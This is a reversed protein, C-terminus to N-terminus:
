EEVTRGKAILYLQNATLESAAELGLRMAAIAVTAQPLNERPQACLAHISTALDKPVRLFFPASEKQKTAM